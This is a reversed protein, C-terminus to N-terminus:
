TARSRGRRGRGRGRGRVARQGPLQRRVRVVQGARCSRAASRSARAARQPRLRPIPPRAAARARPAPGGRRRARSRRRGATAPRASVTTASASPASRGGRRRRGSPSGSGRPRRRGATGSLGAQQRPSAVPRLPQIAACASTSPRIAPPRRPADTTSPVALRTGPKWNRAGDRDGGAAAATACRRPADRGRGPAAGPGPQREVGGQGRQRGTGTARITRVTGPTARPSLATLRATGAPTRPRIKRATRLRGSPTLASGARRRPPGSGRGAGAPQGAVDDHLAAAGAVGGPGAESM